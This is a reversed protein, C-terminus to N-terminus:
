ATVLSVTGDSAITMTNVSVGEELNALYTVISNSGELYVTGFPSYNGYIGEANVMIRVNADGNSAVFVDFATKNKSKEEETQEEGAPMYFTVQGGISGIVTIIADGDETLTIKKLDAGDLYTM